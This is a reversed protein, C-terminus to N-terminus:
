EELLDRVREMAECAMGLYPGNYKLSFLGQWTTYANKLDGINEYVVALNIYADEFNPDVEIASKLYPVSEDWEGRDMYLYGLNYWAEPCGTSDIELSRRYCEEAIKSEGLKYYVNGLNVHAIALEPDFSIACNYLAKAQRLTEPSEDLEGARRYCELARERCRLFLIKAPASQAQRRGRRVKLRRLKGM